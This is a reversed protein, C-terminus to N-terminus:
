QTSGENNITCKPIVEFKIKPYISSWAPISPGQRFTRSRYRLGLGLPDVDNKQGMELLSTIDSALKEKLAKALKADFRESLHIKHDSNEAVSGKIQIHFVAKEKGVQFRSKGHNIRISYTVGDHVLDIVGETVGKTLLRYINSEETNLEVRVRRKDLWVVQEAYLGKARLDVVPMASTIGEETISRYAEYLTLSTINTATDSYEFLTYYFSGTMAQGKPKYELVTHATPKAMGLFTTERIDLREKFFILLQQIDDRALKEGFFIVKTLGFVLQKDTQANMHFLADSVTKDEYTILEFDEGNSGEEALSIKLTM